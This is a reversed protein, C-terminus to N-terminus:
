QAALVHHDPKLRRGAIILISALAFMGLFPDLACAVLSVLLAAGAKWTQPNERLNRFRRICGLAFFAMLFFVGFYVALCAYVLFTLEGGSVVEFGEAPEITLFYLLAAEGLMPAAPDSFEQPLLLSGDSWPFSTAVMQTSLTYAQDFRGNRRAAGIGFASASTGFGDLVPGADVEFTWEGENGDRRYERFGTAWSREQWFEATHVEHWRAADEPWLEPAYIGVWSNGIGRGPQVNSPTADGDLDVRFRVLGLGDDYPAVFARRARAVFASHDTGLVADARHIYAIAALVDIPYTEHPYDELVGHASADLDASLTQVQDRLFALDDPSERLACYSTLGAILLSRFFVNNDHLYDEGWHNRVWTHHGEDMILDRSAEIAEAAYDIDHGENALAETANLYFVASFIPWENQPVDHLPIRTADGSAIRERAWPSMRSSLSQHLELARQSVGPGGLAPDGLDRIVLAGPVLFCEASVLTLLIAAASLIRGLWPQEKPAKSGSAPTKSEPRPPLRKPSSRDKSIHQM